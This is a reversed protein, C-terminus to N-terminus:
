RCAMSILVLTRVISRAAKKEAHALLLSRPSHMHTTGSYPLAAELM